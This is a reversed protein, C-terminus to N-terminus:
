NLHQIGNLIQYVRLKDDSSLDDYLYPYDFDWKFQHLIIENSLQDYEITHFDGVSLPIDLIIESLNLGYLSILNIIKRKLVKQFIVDM